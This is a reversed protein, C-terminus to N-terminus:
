PDYAGSENLITDRNALNASVVNLRTRQAVLGSTSIDLVGYM